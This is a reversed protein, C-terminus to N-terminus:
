KARSIVVPPLNNGCGTEAQACRMEELQLTTHEISFQDHLRQRITSLTSQGESAADSQLTIHASLSIHESCINWIHLDHVDAVGPIAQIASAVSQASLGEPVGEILIHLASRTVRFASIFILVAILLSALPDVWLWGTLAIIIAALIVGLSSIADGVVHLFASRVNLDTRHARGPQHDHDDAHSHAGLILAVLINVLMGITAIILMEVSRIPQPAQWRDIAEWGIGIAIVVLTLGNVLAALVELRHYGFTHRDDAPRASLRLALFSLALAFIDMFVHAADSLLALSGTWLGGIVEAVLILATLSMSLIFRREISQSQHPQMLHIIVFLPVQQM